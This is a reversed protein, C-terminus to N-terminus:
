GKLKEEYRQLAARGPMNNEFKRGDSASVYDMELVKDVGVPQLVPSSTSKIHEAIAQLIEFHAKEPKQEVRRYNREDAFFKDMAALEQVANVGYTKRNVSLRMRLTQTDITHPVNPMRAYVRFTFEAAVDNATWEARPRENRNKSSKKSLPKVSKQAVPEDLLGVGPLDDDDSWRNMKEELPQSQALPSTGETTITKTLKVKLSKSLVRTSTQELSRPSGMRTREPSCPVVTYENAQLRGRVGKIRRVRVLDREVLGVLALSLATRGYGTLSSLEEMSIRTEGFKDCDHRLALFLRLESSSLSLLVLDDM